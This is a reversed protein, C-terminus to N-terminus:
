NSPSWKQIFQIGAAAGFDYLLVFDDGVKYYVKQGITSVFKTLDNRRELQGDNNVYCGIERAHYGLMFTDKETLFLFYLPDIMWPPGSSPVVYYWASGIPAFITSDVIQPTTDLLTLFAQSVSSNGCEDTAIFNILRVETNCTDGPSSFDNSWNVEGCADSAQAGANRSLWSQIVDPLNPAGCIMTTDQAITTIVPATHDQIFITASTTASNGCDDNVTFLVTASGTSGCFDSLGSFNNIWSVNGCVDVVQAGGHNNLWSQIVQPTSVGCEVITDHAVQNIVPALHDVITFHQLLLSVTAAPMLLSLHFQQQVVQEM